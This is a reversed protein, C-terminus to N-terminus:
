LPIRFYYADLDGSRVDQLALNEDERHIFRVQDVYAGKESQSFAPLVANVTSLILLAIIVSALVPAKQM